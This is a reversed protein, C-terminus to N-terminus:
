GKVERTTGDNYRLQWVNQRVECLSRCLGARIHMTAAGHTIPEGPKGEGVILSVYRAPMPAGSPYVADPRTLDHNGRKFLERRGNSWRVAFVYEPAAIEDRLAAIRRELSKVDDGQVMRRMAEEQHPWLSPAADLTMAHFERLVDATM